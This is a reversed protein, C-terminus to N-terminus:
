PGTVSRLVQGFTEAVDQSFLVFRAEDVLADSDRVTTLAIRAADPVPWGFAGTSIAPFAVTRAGLEEAVRLSATYCSALIASRDQSPRYVPGVTHIM